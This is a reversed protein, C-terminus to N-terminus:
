QYAGGATATLSFDSLLTPWARRSRRLIILQQMLLLNEAVVARVGGPGFLKSVALHFMTLLFFGFLRSWRM